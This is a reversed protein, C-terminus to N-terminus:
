GATVVLLARIGLGMIFLGGLGYALEMRNAARWVYRYSYLLGIAIFAVFGYFMHFRPPEYDEASVLLVGLFVQILMMAEAIITPWWLWRNRLKPMRWAVLTYVGAVFNAVIAAYGWARHLDFLM